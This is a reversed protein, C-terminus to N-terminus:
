TSSLLRPNGTPASPTHPGDVAAAMEAYWRAARRGTV